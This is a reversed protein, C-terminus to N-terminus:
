PIEWEYSFKAVKLILSTEVSTVGEMGGLTTSIFELLHEHDDFFAEIIVDYRGTSLGIYRVEPCAVLRESVVHLSVLQVSIGIIASTTMGVAAPTPVAVINVLGEGVLRGIRKRITTETLGLARGIETNSTRGDRQLLRIIDRDVHDVVDSGGRVRGGPVSRIEADEMHQSVIDSEELREGSSM